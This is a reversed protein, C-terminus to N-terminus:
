SMKGFINASKFCFSIHVNLSFMDIIAHFVGKPSNQAGAETAFSM